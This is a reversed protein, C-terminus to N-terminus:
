LGYFSLVAGFATLAGGVAMIKLASQREAADENRNGYVLKFIGMIFMASGAYWVAREFFSVVISVIKGSVDSGSSIASILQKETILKVLYSTGMLGASVGMMTSAKSVADAQEQSIALIMLFIASILLVIGAYMCLSQIVKLIKETINTVTSTEKISLTKVVTSIGLFFASFGLMISADMKSKSNEDTYAILLKIIGLILLVVGVAVGAAIFIDNLNNIAKTTSSRSINKGGVNAIIYMAKM